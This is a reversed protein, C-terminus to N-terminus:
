LEQEGLPERFRIFRINLSLRALLAILTRRFWNGGNRKKTMVSVSHSIMAEREAVLDCQSNVEDVNLRSTGGSEGSM